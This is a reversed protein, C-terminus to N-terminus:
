KTCTNLCSRLVFYGAQERRLGSVRPHFGQNGSRNTAQREEGDRDYISRIRRRIQRQSQRGGRGSREGTRQDIRDDARRRRCPTAEAMRYQGGRGRHDRRRRQGVDDLFRAGTTVAILALLTVQRQLAEVHRVDVAARFQGFLHDAFQAGAHHRRRTTRLRASVREIHQRARELPRHVRAVSQIRIRARAGELTQIAGLVLPRHLVKQSHVDLGFRPQREIGLAGVEVVDGVHLRWRGRQEIRIEVRGTLDTAERDAIRLRAHARRAITDGTEGRLDIRHVTCRGTRATACRHRVRERGVALVYERDRQVRDGGSLQEARRCREVFLNLDRHVTLAHRHEFHVATHRLGIRVTHFDARLRDRHPGARLTDRGREDTRELPRDIVVDRGDTM